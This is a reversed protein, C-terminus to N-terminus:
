ALLKVIVQFLLSILLSGMRPIEGSSINGDLDSRQGFLLMLYENWNLHFLNILCENFSIINCFFDSPISFVFSM